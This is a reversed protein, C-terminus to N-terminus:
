SWAPTTTRSRSIMSRTGSRRRSSPPGSSPPRSITQRSRRSRVGCCPGIGSPLRGDRRRLGRAVQAPGRHGFGGDGARRLAAGQARGALGAIRLRLPRSVVHRARASDRWPACHTSRAPVPPAASALVAVPLVPAAQGEAIAERLAQACTRCLKDCAVIRVARRRLGLVCAARKVSHHTEVSAYVRAPRRVGDRSPPDARRAGRGLPGDNDAIGRHAVGRVECGDSATM